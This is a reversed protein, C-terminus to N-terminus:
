EHAYRADQARRREIEARLEAETVPGFLVPESNILIVPPYPIGTAKALARGPPSNIDITYPTFDYELALRGLL